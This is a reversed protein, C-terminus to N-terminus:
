KIKTCAEFVPVNNQMGPKDWMFYAGWWAVALTGALVMCFLNTTEIRACGVTPLYPAQKPQFSAGCAVRSRPGAAEHM